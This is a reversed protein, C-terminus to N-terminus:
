NEARRTIVRRWERLDIPAANFKAPSKVTASTTSQGANFQILKKAHSSLHIIWFLDRTKVLFTSHTGPV